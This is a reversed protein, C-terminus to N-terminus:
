EFFLHVELTRESPIAGESLEQLSEDPASLFIGGKPYIRTVHNESILRRILLTM